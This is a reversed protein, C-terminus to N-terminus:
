SKNQINGNKVEDLMVFIKKLLVLVIMNGTGVRLDEKELIEILDTVSYEKSHDLEFYNEHSFYENIKDVFKM